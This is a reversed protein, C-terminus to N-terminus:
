DPTVWTGNLFPRWERSRRGKRIEQNGKIVEVRNDSSVSGMQTIATAVFDRDDEAHQGFVAVM